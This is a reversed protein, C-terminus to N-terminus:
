EKRAKVNAFEILSGYKIFQAKGKKTGPLLGSRILSKVEGITAGLMHTARSLLILSEYNEDVLSAHGGAVLLIEWWIGIGKLAEIVEKQHSSLRTSRTKVEVFKVAGDKVALFDPMGRHFITWGEQELQAAVLREASTLKDMEVM